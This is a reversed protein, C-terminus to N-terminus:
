KRRVLGGFFKGKNNKTLDYDRSDGGFFRGTSIPVYNGDYDVTSGPTCSIVRLEGDWPDCVCLYQRGLFSHTEDIVVAHGGGATWRVRGIVPTGKDTADIVAQAFGTEGVDVYEWDGLGLKPLVQAYLEPKAGQTNFDNPSGKVEDYLKIVESESAVALAIAARALTYGIYSAGPIPSVALKAGAAMGAFMLGKKMKFNVMVISSMACAMEKDQSRVMHVSGFRSIRSFWSM